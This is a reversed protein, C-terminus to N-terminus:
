LILEFGGIDAGLATVETKSIQGAADTTFVLIIYQLSIRPSNGNISRPKQLPVIDNKLGMEKMKFQLILVFLSSSNIVVNMTM